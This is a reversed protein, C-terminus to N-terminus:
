KQGEFLTKIAVVVIVSGESDSMLYLLDCFWCVKSM